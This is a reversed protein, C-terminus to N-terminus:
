GRHLEGEVISIVARINLYSRFLNNQLNKTSLRYFGHLVAIALAKNFSPVAISTM